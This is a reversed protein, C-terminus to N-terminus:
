GGVKGCFVGRREDTPTSQGRRPQSVRAADPHVPLPRWHTVKDTWRTSCGVHGTYWDGGVFSAAISIEYPYRLLVIYEEGIDSTENEPLRETVPIWAAEATLRANEAEAEALAKALEVRAFTIGVDEVRGDFERCIEAIREIIKTQEM